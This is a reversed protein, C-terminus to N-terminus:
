SASWTRARSLFLKLRAYERLRCFANGHAKLGTGELELTKLELMGCVAFCDVQGCTPSDNRRPMRLTRTDLRIAV